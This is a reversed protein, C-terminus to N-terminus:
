LAFRVGNTSVEQAENIEQQRREFNLKEDPDKEFERQCRNLLLQRFTTWENPKDDCPM